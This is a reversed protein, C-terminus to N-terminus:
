TGAGSVNVALGRANSLQGGLSGSWGFRFLPSKAGEAASAGIGLFALILALVVSGLWLRQQDNQGVAAAPSASLLSRM